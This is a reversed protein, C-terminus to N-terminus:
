SVQPLQLRERVETLPTAYLSEWDTAFLQKAKTGMTYGTTIGNWIKTLHQPRALSATFLSGGALISSIPTELQAMMFGHISIEGVRSTDFGTVIHWFDHTERNRTVIYDIDRKIEPARYYNPDLNNHLMHDAFIRGFTGEPLKQLAHLDIEKLRKRSKIVQLCDPDSSLRALMRENLGLNDLADSMEFAQTIDEPNRSMRFIAIFLRLYHPLRVLLKM